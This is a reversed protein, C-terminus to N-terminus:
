EPIKAKGSSNSFQMPIKIPNANFRYIAKPLIAM